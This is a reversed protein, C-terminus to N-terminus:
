SCKRRSRDWWTYLWLLTTAMALAFMEGLVAAVFGLFMYIGPGMTPEGRAAESVAISQALLVQQQQAWVFHWCNASFVVM